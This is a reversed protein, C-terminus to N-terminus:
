AIAAFYAGLESPDGQLDNKVHLPILISLGSSFTLNSIGVVSLSIWLWRQSRAYRLGEM